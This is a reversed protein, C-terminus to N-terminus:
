MILTLYGFHDHPRNKDDKRVTGKKYDQIM